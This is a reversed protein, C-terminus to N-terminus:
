GTVGLIMGNYKELMMKAEPVDKLDAKAQFAGFLLAGCLTENVILIYTYIYIYTIYIYIHSIYIYISDNVTENGTSLTHLYIYIYICICVDRHTYYLVILKECYTYM